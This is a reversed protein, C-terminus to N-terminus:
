FSLPKNQYFDLIKMRFYYDYKAQVLNARAKDLNVKALNYDVSNVLGVNFRSETAKFAAELATVQEKTSTYRSAAAQMDNYAQEIDQRLQVRINQADLTTTKQRIVSRSVNSRTQWGNLIPISLRFSVYRNRNDNIQDFYSYNESSRTIGSLDIPSNLVVDRESGGVYGIVKIRSTDIAPLQGTTSVRTSLNSYNSGYGAGVALTPFYASKAVSVALQSSKVKLDASQVAYQTQEAVDYIQQVSQSYADLSPEDLEIKEIAFNSQVPLNMSQMLTLKALNLNNQATILSLQDNALQAQLDLLNTQPLSGAKVLKDTREMQQRSIEVQNRAIELLEQTNLVQLYNIAVNLGLDNKSQMVDMRYAQVYKENQQLTKLRQGGQFLVLSGSLSINSTQQSADRLRQTTPDLSRGYNFTYNASADITPLFAAKSQFLDAQSSEYQLESRKITMNNANGYDICERLSWTDDSTGQAQVQAFAGKAGAVFLLCIAFTKIRIM